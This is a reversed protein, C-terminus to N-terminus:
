TAEAWGAAVLPLSVGLAPVEFRLEGEVSGPVERVHLEIDGDVIRSGEGLVMAEEGIRPAAAASAWLPVEAVLALGVAGAVRDPAASTVAVAAIRAGHRNVTGLIADLAEESPDGPDVVVVRARGIIWSDATQGPRGGGCTQTVRVLGPRAVTTTPATAKSLPGLRRMDSPSTVAELQALTTSTPPWLELEGAQYQDLARSPSLWAHAAVEGHHAAVEAGEPLWALFFRTDFRRSGALPPTVWRSLPVLWDTRLRLDLREALSGLSTEHAAAELVIRGAVPTGDSHDALLIGAEEYLERIAAVAHALAARPELDGAWASACAGADLVSREALSGAGDGADVAGGPFVHLGPGFAMTSPRHTLLVDVGGV